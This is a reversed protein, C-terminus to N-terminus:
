PSAAPTAFASVSVEFRDESDILIRLLTFEVERKLVVEIGGPGVTITEIIAPDWSPHSALYLDAREGAAPGDLQIVGTQRWLTEDVATAGAVVAGDAMGALVRRETFARWVDLSFGGLFMLSISLGLIWIVITGRDDGLRRM